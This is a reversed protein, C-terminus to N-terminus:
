VYPRDREVAAPRSFRALELSSDEDTFVGILFMPALRHPNKTKSLFEEIMGWRKGLFSACPIQWKGKLRFQLLKTCDNKGALAGISNESYISDEESLLDDHDPRGDQLIGSKPIGSRLPIGSLPVFDDLLGALFITPLDAFAGHAQYMFGVVGFEDTIYGQFEERSVFYRYGFFVLDAKQLLRSRNRCQIVRVDSRDVIDILCVLIKEPNKPVM